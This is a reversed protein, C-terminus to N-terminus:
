RHKYFLFGNEEKIFILNPHYKFKEEVDVKMVFFAPRDVQKAALLTEASPSGTPKQFYLLHAFSKFGVTEIYVNQGVKSVYFDIPTAQTYGEIKPVVIAMYAMILLIGSAMLSFISMPKVEGKRFLVVGILGM